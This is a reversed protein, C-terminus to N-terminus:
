RGRRASSKGHTAITILPETLRLQNSGWRIISTGLGKNRYAPLIGLDMADSLKSRARKDAASAWCYRLLISDPSVGSVVM